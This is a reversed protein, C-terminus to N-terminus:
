SCVEPSLAESLKSGKQLNEPMSSNMKSKANSDEDPTVLTDSWNSLDSSQQFLYELGPVGVTSLQVTPTDGNESLTMELSEPPLVILTLEDEENFPNSWKPDTYLNSGSLTELFAVLHSQEQASLNLRQGGGRRQLRRDLGTVVAPIANYHAVVDALTELSGDHMFAGNSSGDPKVLDRLSPSRTNTFDTGGELSSVIGNNGTNPDIDFEPPRHCSACGAQDLFLAKGQNEADTFADFPTNQNPEGARALDFKSDFSQISRVFQALALQVRNETIASDGHIATFLVRYDDIANLRTVLDGFDPDDLTGSFGMEVHDQIPQTTQAELTDARNDWFFRRSQAFRGNVLRMSHRGTTGAVGTSALDLDSFGHEQQHCSACSITNNRSLRKDYFLIRGLTAGLDTIANDEPTNDRDIYAPVAQDAYNELATLDIEGSQAFIPLSKCLLFILPTIKM